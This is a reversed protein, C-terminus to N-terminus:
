FQHGARLVTYWAKTGLRRGGITQRKFGCKRNYSTTETILHTIGYLHRLIIYINNFSVAKEHVLGKYWAKTGRHKRNKKGRKRKYSTTERRM